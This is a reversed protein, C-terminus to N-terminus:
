TMVSKKRKGSELNAASMFTSGASNGMSIYNGASICDGTSIKGDIIMLTLRACINSVVLNAACIRDNCKRKAKSSRNAVTPKPATSLESILKYTCLANPREAKESTRNLVEM